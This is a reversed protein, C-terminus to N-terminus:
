LKGGVVAWGREATLRALETHAEHDVPDFRRGGVEVWAHAGWQNPGYFRCGLVVAPPAGGRQLLAALAVARPLCDARLVRSAMAVSRAAADADLAARRHRRRRGALLLLVKTTRMRWLLVKSTAVLVTASIVLWWPPRAKTMGAFSVM